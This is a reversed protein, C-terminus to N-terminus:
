YAYYQLHVFSYKNSNNMIIIMPINICVSFIDQWLILLKLPGNNGTGWLYWSSRAIHVYMSLPHM